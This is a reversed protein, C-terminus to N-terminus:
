EKPNNKRPKTKAPRFSTRVKELSKSIARLEKESRDSIEALRQQLRKKRTAPTDDPASFSPQNRKM